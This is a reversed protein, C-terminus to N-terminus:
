ALMKKAEEIWQACRERSKGQPHKVWLMAPFQESGIQTAKRVYFNGHPSKKTEFDNTGGRKAKVADYIINDGYGDCVFVVLTPHCKKIEERLTKSALAAQALQLQKPPNGKAVGIKTVNSWAVNILKDSNGDACHSLQRAFQWFSSKGNFSSMSAYKGTFTGATAKGVFLIRKSQKKFGDLMHGLFLGALQLKGKRGSSIESHLAKWQEALKPSVTNMTAGM